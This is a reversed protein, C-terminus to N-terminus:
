SVAVSDVRRADTSRPEGLREPHLIRAVLEAGEVVRPGPRVFYSDADVAWVEAQRPIRGAATLEGALASAAELHYGCPAVLVVAAHTDVVESWPIRRSDGGPHALVPDGGGAAVVEPVWHGATFAPDTWELTLVPPRAAGELVEGLSALRAHLSEVLVAARGRVGLAVGVTQISDIVESLRRPDLTM